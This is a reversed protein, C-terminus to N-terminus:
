ANNSEESVGMAYTAAIRVVKDRVAVFDYEEPVDVTIVGSYAFDTVDSFVLRPTNEGVIAYPLQTKIDRLIAEATADLNRVTNAIAVNVKGSTVPPQKIVVSSNIVSNPIIVRQGAMTGLTTYRLNVDHVVGRQGSVEVFDGPEVTRALSIQLGGVLNSITDQCGLSIAIGGVGLAAIAATLDFNFCSSFMISLGAVWVAIRAIKVFITTSPLPSGERSLLHNLSMTVGHSAIWTVIILVFAVVFPGVSGAALNSLMEILKDM